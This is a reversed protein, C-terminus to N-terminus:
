RIMTGGSWLHNGQSKWLKLQDKARQLQEKQRLRLEAMRNDFQHQAQMKEFRSIQQGRLSNKWLKEETKLQKREMKQQAELQKLGNPPGKPASLLNPAPWACLAFFLLLVGSTKKM